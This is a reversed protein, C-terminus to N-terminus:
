DEESEDGDNDYFRGKTNAFKKALERLGEMVEDTLDNKPHSAHDLTITRGQIGNFGLKLVWNSGRM